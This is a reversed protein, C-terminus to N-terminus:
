LPVQLQTDRNIGHCLFHLWDSYFSLQKKWPTVRLVCGEWRAVTVRIDCQIQQGFYKRNWPKYCLYGVSERPIGHFIVSAVRICICTVHLCTFRQM